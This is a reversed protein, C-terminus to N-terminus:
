LERLNDLIRVDSGYHLGCIRAAIRALRGARAASLNSDYYWGGALVEAYRALHPSRGYLAAPDRAVYRRARGKEAAFTELFHPYAAALERLLIRYAHKLNAAPIRRGGLEVSWLGRGRSAGPPRRIGDPAPPRREGARAPLLVRRLIENETEGLALRLREIARHVDLDIEIRRQEGAM